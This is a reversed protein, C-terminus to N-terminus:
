AHPYINVNEKEERGGTKNKIKRKKEKKEIKKKGEKM